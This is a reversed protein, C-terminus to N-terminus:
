KLVTAPPLCKYLKICTTLSSIFCNKTKLIEQPFLFFNRRFIKLITLTSFILTKTVVIRGERISIERIQNDSTREKDSLDDTHITDFGKSNLIWAIGYPLQADVIFKM